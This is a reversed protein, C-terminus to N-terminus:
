HRRWIEKAGNDFFAKWHQNNRPLLTKFSNFLTEAHDLDMRSFENQADGASWCYEQQANAFAQQSIKGMDFMITFWQLKIYNELGRLFSPLVAIPLRSM